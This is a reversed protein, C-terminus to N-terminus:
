RRKVKTSVVTELIKKMEKISFKETNLVIDFPSYDNTDIRYFRKFRKAESKERYRTERMVERYSRGERRAILQVRVRLPATLLIKLDANKAMWGALKADILVNDGKAERVTRKDIMLDIEPHREAYKSFEELSMGREAAMKRFVDGACVYRLGFKKALYKAVTTKGAGHLGSIAIVVMGIRGAGESKYCKARLIPLSKWWLAPQSPALEPGVSEAKGTECTTCWQASSWVDLVGAAQDEEASLSCGVQWGTNAGM